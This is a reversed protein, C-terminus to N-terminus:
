SLGGTELADALADERARAQTATTEQAAGTPEVLGFEEGALAQDQRQLFSGRLDDFRERRTRAAREMEPKLDPGWVMGPATDFRGEGNLWTVGYRPLRGSRIDADTQPIAAIFIDGRAIKTGARESVEAALQRGFYDMSGGIAPYHKEPPHKMLRNTGTVSSVDYTTKLDELAMARAVTEDATAIFHEKFLTRFTNLMIRGRVDNAGLEPEFSFATDFEGTIDGADFKKAVADADRTLAERRRRFEETKTAEIRRVAEEPQLGAEFVYAEFARADTRIEKAGKRGELAGPKERLLQATTQYAFAKAEPTGNTTMGRLLSLTSDPVIGTSKVIGALMASAREDQAQIAENIGSNVAAEDIVKRDDKSNPDAPLTGSLLQDARQLAQERETIEKNLKMATEVPLLAQKGGVARGEVQGDEIAGEMHVQMKTTAWAAVRAATWDRFMPNADLVAQPLLEKLPTDPDASLVKVARPSGLVHALYVEGPSPDGGLARTLDATNSATLRAAARSQAAVSSKRADTALGQRTGTGSTFQFIGAASSKPNKANPDLRSEARGIATLLLPDVGEAEAAAFIQPVVPGAKPGPVGTVAGRMIRKAGATDKASLRGRVAAEVVGRKGATELARARDPSIASRVSAVHTEVAKFGTDVDGTELATQQEVRINDEAKDVLFSVRQNHFKAAARGVAAERLQLQRVQLRQRGEDSLAFGRAMFDAERRTLRDAITRDATEVFDDDNSRALLEREAEAIDKAAEVDYSALTVDDHTKERKEKAEAFAAGIRSISAGADAVASGRPDIIRGQRPAALRGSVGPDRVAGPIPIDVM